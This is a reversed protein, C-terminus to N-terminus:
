RPTNSIQNSIGQGSSWYVPVTESRNSSVGESSGGSDSVEESTSSSSEGSMMMGNGGGGGLLHTTSFSGVRRTKRPGQGQAISLPDQHPHHGRSAGGMGGMKVLFSPGLRDHDEDDGEQDEDDIYVGGAHDEEEYHNGGLRTDQGRNHSYDDGSGRVMSSGLHDACAVASLLSIYSASLSKRVGRPGGRSHKMYGEEGVGLPADLFSQPLAHPFFQSPRHQTHFISPMFDEEDNDNDNDYSMGGLSGGTLGKLRSRRGPSHHHKSSTFPTTTLRCTRGGGVMGECTM